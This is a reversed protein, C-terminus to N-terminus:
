DLVMPQIGPALAPVTAILFRGQAQSRAKSLHCRKLTGGEGHFIDDKHEPKSGLSLSSMKRFKIRICLFSTMEKFYFVRRCKQRHPEELHCRKLTITEVTFSTM